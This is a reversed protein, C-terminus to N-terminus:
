SILDVQGIVRTDEMMEQRVKLGNQLVKGVAVVEEVCRSYLGNYSTKKNEVRKKQLVSCNLIEEGNEEMVGCGVCMRDEYKWKQQAKIDLTKTRAKFILKSLNTNCNGDVFYSQIQLKSYSIEKVKEQKNKEAILYDFALKNVKEKVLKKFKRKSMVEIESFTLDIKLKELYEECM